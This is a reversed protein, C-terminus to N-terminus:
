LCLIQETQSRSQGSGLSHGWTWKKSVAPGPPDWNHWTKSMLHGGVGQCGAEQEGRSGESGLPTDLPSLLWDLSAGVSM